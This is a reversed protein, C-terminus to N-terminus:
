RVSGIHVISADRAQISVAAVTSQGGQASALERTDGKEREGRAGSVLFAAIDVSGGGEKKM